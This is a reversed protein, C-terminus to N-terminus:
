IITWEPLYICSDQKDSAILYNKPAIVKKEENENLYAAWWGFTSSGCMINHDCNKIIAFDLIDSNGESYYINPGKINNKCWELDSVNRINPNRSGGSFVLFVCDKSFHKMASDLYKGYKSNNFDNDMDGFYNLNDFELTTGDCSDGRRVHISVIERGYFMSLYELAKEEVAVNIRFEKKIQESCEEFYKLNQFFGFLDTGEEIFFVSDDFECFDKEQFGFRIVDSSNLYDCELNFYDLLCAQGQWSQTNPPPIKVQFNNKIGVSKLAAYQFLQNGLRGYSGLRSFSIV